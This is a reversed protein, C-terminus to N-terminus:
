NEEVRAITPEYAHDRKYLVDIGLIEDPQVESEEEKEEKDDPNIKHINALVEIGRIVRGFATYKGNLQYTPLYMIFFQSGGSSPDTKGTERDPALALGLTGRFFKRANPRDMEGPITYGPGGSGDGEPCGGQAMFHRMVRHFTLHDFFGSEVLSIFNAVTQPAQNEFLEVEMDGKTTRILVRPLPEGQADEERMRLEDQWASEIEDIHEQLMLLQQSVVGEEILRDLNPRVVEYQNLGYAAMTLFGRMKEDPYNNDLLVQAVEVMGEYRDEEINRDLVKFLMTALEPKGEPDLQYEAIAARLM